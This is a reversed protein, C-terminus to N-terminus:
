NPAWPAGHVMPGWPAMPGMFGMFGMPGLPPAWAWRAWSPPRRGAAPRIAPPVKVESTFPALNTWGDSVVM